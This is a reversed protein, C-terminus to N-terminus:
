HLEGQSPVKLSPNESAGLGGSEPFCTREVVKRFCVRFNLKWSFRSSSENVAGFLPIKFTLILTSVTSLCFSALLDYKNLPTTM